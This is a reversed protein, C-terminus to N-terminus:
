STRGDEEPGGRVHLHVHRGGKQVPALHRLLAPSLAGWVSDMKGNHELILETAQTTMLGKHSM